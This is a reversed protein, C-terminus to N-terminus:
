EGLDVFVNDFTGDETFRRAADKAESSANPLRLLSMLAQKKKADEPLFKRSANVLLDNIKDPSKPTKIEILGDGTEFDPRKRSRTAYLFFGSKGHKVISWLEDGDPRAGVIHGKRNPFREGSLELGYPEGIRKLLAGMTDDYGHITKNSTFAGYTQKLAAEFTDALETPEPHMGMSDAWALKVAARQRDTLSGDADVEEYRKWLDYAEHPDHGEVLTRMPDDGYGPVVKCKCGRHFRRMLGAKDRSHYVAGRSALMVCFTCSTAGSTVRAYRVGRGEDRKANGAITENLSKLADNAAYEGCARAFSGFDRTGDENVKRLMRAQYRAVANVDDPDYVVSTVAAPLRPGGAMRDDYWEAALATAAEDYAQVLQAMVLKAAERFEAVTADPHENCWALVRARVQEATGGAIRDVADNYARWEEASIM